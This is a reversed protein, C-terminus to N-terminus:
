VFTIRGEELAPFVIPDQRMSLRRSLWSPSSGLEAATHRLGQGDVMTALMDLAEIQEQHALDERFATADSAEREIASVTTIGALRAARWRREGAMLQWGQRRGHHANQRRLHAGNV